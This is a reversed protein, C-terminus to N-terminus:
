ACMNIAPEYGGYANMIMNNIIIKSENKSGGM